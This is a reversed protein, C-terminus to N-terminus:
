NNAKVVNGDSVRRATLEDWRRQLDDLDEEEAALQLGTHIDTLLRVLDETLQAAPYYGDEVTTTLRQSSFM